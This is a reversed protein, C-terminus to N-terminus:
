KNVVIVSQGTQSNIPSGFADQTVNAYHGGWGNPNTVWQQSM